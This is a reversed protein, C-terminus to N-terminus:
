SVPMLDSRVKGRFFVLPPKGSNASTAVVTGIVISIDGRQIVDDVVCDFAGLAEGYIPAGTELTTWEGEFFRDAGSLGLKGGFADAVKEAGAPLFNVAFHRSELVAALAHTKKDISVLLTPPDATVHTASLGLFGAPGDAGAATVITVGIAREGLTRWFTKVDVVPTEPVDTM